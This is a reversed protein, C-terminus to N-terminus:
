KGEDANVRGIRASERILREESLLQEMTIGRAISLVAKGANELAKGYTYLQDLLKSRFLDLMRRPFWRSLEARIASRKEYRDFVTRM